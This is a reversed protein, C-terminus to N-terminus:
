EDADIETKRAPKKKGILGYVDEKMTNIDNKLNGMASTLDKMAQITDSLEAKTAYEAHDGGSTSSADAREILDYAKLIPKGTADAQKLYVVPESTNWLTVANNPAVPYMQAEKESNVWIISNSTNNPMATSQQSQQTSYAPATVTTSYPIYYPYASPNYFNNYAYPTQYGYPNYAAMQNKRELGITYQFMRKQIGPITYTGM